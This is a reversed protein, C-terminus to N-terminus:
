DERPVVALVRLGLQEFARRDRVFPDLAYAALAVAAGAALAILARVPLDFRSRLPPAVGVAVPPDLARVAPVRGDSLQPWYAGSNQTMEDAAAQAIRVVQAEDPWAVYLM